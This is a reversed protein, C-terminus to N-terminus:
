KDPNLIMSVEQIYSDYTSSMMQCLNMFFEEIVTSNYCSGSLM